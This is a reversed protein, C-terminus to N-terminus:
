EFGHKIQISQIYRERSLLDPFEELREIVKIANRYGKFLLFNNVPKGLQESYVSFRQRHEAITQKKQANASPAIAPPRKRDSARNSILAQSRQVPKHLHPPLDIYSTPIFDNASEQYIPTKGTVGFHKWYQQYLSGGRAKHALMADKLIQLADTHCSYGDAQRAAILPAMRRVKMGTNKLLCLADALLCSSKALVDLNIVDIGNRTAQVIVPLVHDHHDQEPSRFLQQSFNPDRFMPIRNSHLVLGVPMQRSKDLKRLLLDALHEARDIHRKQIHIKIGYKKEYLDALVLKAIHGPRAVAGMNVIGAPTSAADKLDAFTFLPNTDLLELDLARGGIEVELDQQATHSICNGPFLQQRLLESPSTSSNAARAHRDTEEVQATHNGTCFLANLKGGAMSFAHAMQKVKESFTCKTTPQAVHVSESLKQQSSAQIRM